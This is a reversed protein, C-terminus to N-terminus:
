STQGDSYTGVELKPQLTGAAAVAAAADIAEDLTSQVEAEALPSAAALPSPVIPGAKPMVAEVPPSCLVESAPAASLSVAMQAPSTACGDGKGDEACEVVELPVPDPEAMTNSPGVLILSVCQASPAL